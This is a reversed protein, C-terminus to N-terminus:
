EWEISVGLSDHVKGGRKQTMSTCMIIWGNGHDISNRLQSILYRGGAAEVQDVTGTVGESAAVCIDKFVTGGNSQVDYGGPAINDSVRLRGLRWQHTDTTFSLFV